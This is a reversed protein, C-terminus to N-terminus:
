LRLGGMIAVFLSSAVLDATAGPNYLNGEKRLYSDLKRVESKHLDSELIERAWSSIRKAEEGSTKRAILSDPYRAMIEFFARTVASNIDKGEEFAGAISPHGIEFTITYKSTIELAINDGETIEMIRYFNLREEEIRELAKEDYLDYSKAEGMGGPKALRIAEYLELTDNYTSERVVQWTKERLGSFEIEEGSLGRGACLPVLLMAIGLNTNGGKQWGMAREVAKRIGEGIGIESINIEGEYAMAGRQAAELAPQYFSTSSALFQGYSTGPFDRYPTVNGPKPASAELLCALVASTAVDHM